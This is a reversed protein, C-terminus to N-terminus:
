VKFAKAVYDAPEDTVSEGCYLGGHWRVVHMAWKPRPPNWKWMREQTQQAAIVARIRANEWLRVLKQKFVVKRRLSPKEGPGIGPLAREENALIYLDNENTIFLEYINDRKNMARRHEINRRCMQIFLEEEKLPPPWTRRRRAPPRPADCFCYKLLPQWFAEQGYLAYTHRSAALLSCTNRCIFHRDEENMRENTPGYRRDPKQYANFGREHWQLDQYTLCLIHAILAPEGVLM